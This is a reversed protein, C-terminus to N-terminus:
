DRDRKDDGSETERASARVRFTVIIKDGRLFYYTELVDPVSYEFALYLPKIEYGVTVGGPGVISSLQPRIYGQGCTIFKDAEEMAVKAPVDKEVRYNFEPAYPEFTYRDGEKDLIAFTELDRAHSCGYLILRYTATVESEPAAEKRLRTGLTCSSSLVALAAALFLLRFMILRSTKMIENYYGLLTAELFILIPL